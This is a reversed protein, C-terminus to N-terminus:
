IHHTVKTPESRGLVTGHRDLAEAAFYPGESNVVIATEFRMQRARGAHALSDPDSGALVQWSHTETSGNWSAYVTAGGAANPGALVAPREAAQGRWQSIQARYSQDDAPFRGDLILKGGTTFESFYPQEGWGIFVRDKGVLQVSGQTAASLQTPHRYRHRLSVTRAHEDVGLVLGSSESGDTQYKGNDFLTLTHGGHLRADHQWAFRAGDPVAFDSNKGGLRWIIAGSSRDIKYVTWTHRASVILNGDAAYSIANIHFYDYPKDSTGSDGLEKHSESLPVHELSDWSYLLRGSAVDIEQVVGALLHGSRSGGVASLDHGTSRYATILATGRSTLNFEHLDAQLGHQARVSAIQRYSSDFIVGKGRGHGRAITGEWWTLVPKGRYRQVRVDMVAHPNPRFWVLRGAADIIMTGQQGVMPRDGKAGKTGLMIHRPTHVDHAFHGRDRVVNVRPPTLDPRSLFHEVPAAPFGPSSLGEDPSFWPWRYGGYGAAGLALVGGASGAAVGLLRRRTWRTPKASEEDAGEEAAGEAAAGEEDAEM